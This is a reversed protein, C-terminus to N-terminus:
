DYRIVVSNLVAVDETDIEINANKGNLHLDNYDLVGDVNLIAAGLRSYSVYDSKFAVGYKSIDIKEGCTALQFNWGRERNMSSLKDAFEEMQEIEWEHYPIGNAELNHKVKRYMAIDAYSFVLKETYDKLQDGIYQVKQLLNDVSIDDTLIM